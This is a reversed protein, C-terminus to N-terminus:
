LRFSTGIFARLTLPALTFFSLTVKGLPSLADPLYTIATTSEQSVTLSDLSPFLM